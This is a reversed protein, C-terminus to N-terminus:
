GCGGRSLFVLPPYLVTERINRWTIGEPNPYPNVYVLNQMVNSKSYDRAFFLIVPFTCSNRLDVKILENSFALNRFKFLWGVTEYGLLVKIPSAPWCSLNRVYCRAFGNPNRIGMLNFARLLGIIAKWGGRTQNAHVLVKQFTKTM